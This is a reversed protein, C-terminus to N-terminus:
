APKFRIKNTQTNKKIPACLWLRTPDVGRILVVVGRDVGFFSPLSVSLVTILVYLVVSSLSLVLNLVSLLMLMSLVAGSLSRNFHFQAHWM